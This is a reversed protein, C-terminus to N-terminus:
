RSKGLALRAKLSEIVGRCLEQARVWDRFAQPKTEVCGACLSHEYVTSPLVPTGCSDCPVKSFDGGALGQACEVWNHLWAKHHKAADAAATARVKAIWPRTELEAM